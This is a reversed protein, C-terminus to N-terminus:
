ILTIEKQGFEAELVPASEPNAIKEKVLKVIKEYLEKNKLMLGVRDTQGSQVTGLVDGAGRLKMDEEAIVFGDTTSTLIKAKEDDEKTNLVFYGEHDGRGVRGRLQHAQALGFLESNMLAMVTANPVNVGVEVITTSILVQIKNEKFDKLIEEIKKKSMKADIQGITVGTGKFAKEYTALVDKVSRAKKTEDEDKDEIKPCVIYAQRGKKAERLILKQIQADSSVIKSYVPKRNAPKDKIEILKMNDGFMTQLTTRPIPTASLSVVHPSNGKETLLARQETGFRHQEDVIVLGLNHFQVSESILANTGLIYKYRGSAIGDLAENREKVKMNSRLLCVEDGFFNKLDHYHQEALVTTPAMLCAQYGSEVAANMVCVAVITKGAGVDAQVLTNMTKDTLSDSVIKNIAQQQGNTLQYPLSQILQNMKNTNNFRIINNNNSVVKHKEIHYATEFLNDFHIRKTGFEIDRFDSPFHVRRVAEPRNLLNFRALDEPMLYEESRLRERISVNRLENLYEHTMKRIKRYIPKIVSNGQIDISFDEVSISRGWEPDINVKGYFFIRSSSEIYKKFLFKLNKRGFFLASFKGGHDDLLHVSIGNGSKHEIVSTPTGVICQKEKDKLEHALVPHRRDEYRKPLYSLVDYINEIGAALLKNLQSQAIEEPMEKNMATNYSTNKYTINNVHSVFDVDSQEKSTEPIEQIVIGDSKNMEQQTAIYEVMLQPTKQGQWENIGLYGIVTMNESGPINEAVNNFYMCQLNKEGDTISFRVHEGSKTNQAYRISVNRFAFLPKPNAEGFPQLLEFQNIYDLNIDRVRAELDYRIKEVLINDPIHKALAFLEQKLPNYNDLTLSFGAAAGHGGMKEFRNRTHNLMKFVNVCEISRASGHLHGEENESCVLVPKYYRDMLKSAVIGVVGKHWNLGKAVIINEKYEGSQELQRVAEDFIHSQIEKRNENTTNLDNARQKIAEENDTLYGYTLLEVTKFSHKLRGEANMRPGIGFGINESIAKQYDLGAVDFLAKVGKNPNNRLKNLGHYVIARNEEILPMVDAITGIAALDIFEYAGDDGLLIRSLQYALGAGCMERFYFTEGEQKPDIVVCEPFLAKDAPPEHHDVVFVDLGNDSAYKLDDKSTIGCDVTILMKAGRDIITQVANRNVGYGETMRDPIYVKVKIGLMKLTLFLISSSTCGDVDYDGYIYVLPKSPDQAVRKIADALKTINLINKPNSLKPNFFHDLLNDGLDNKELFDVVDPHLNYKDIMGQSITTKKTKPVIEVKPMSM